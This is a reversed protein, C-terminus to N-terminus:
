IKAEWFMEKGDFICMKCDEVFRVEASSFSSNPFHNETKQIPWEPRKIKIKTKEICNVTSFYIDMIITQRHISQFQPGRANSAVARGVSGCGSGSKKTKTTEFAFTTKYVLHTLVSPRFQQHSFM